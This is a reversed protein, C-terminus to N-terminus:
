SESDVKDRFVERTRAMKCEVLRNGYVNSFTMHKWSGDGYFEAPTEPNACHRCGIRYVKALVESREDKRASKIMSLITKSKADIKM